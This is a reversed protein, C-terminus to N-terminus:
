TVDSSTEKVPHQALMREVEEAVRSAPRNRAANDAHQPASYIGWGGMSRLTKCSIRRGDLTHVGVTHHQPDDWAPSFAAVRSWPVSHTRFLNRIVIHEGTVLVGGRWTRVMAVVILAEVITVGIVTDRSPDTFMGTSFFGAVASAVVLGTITRGWNRIYVPEQM